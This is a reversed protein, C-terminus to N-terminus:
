WVCKEIRGGIKDNSLPITKLKDPALQDIVESCVVCQPKPGKKDEICPFGYKVYEPHVEGYKAIAWVALWWPM